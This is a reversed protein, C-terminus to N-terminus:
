LKVDYAKVKKDDAYKNNEQDPQTSNIYLNSACSLLVHKSVKALPNNDLKLCSLKHLTKLIASPWLRIKNKSLILAQM